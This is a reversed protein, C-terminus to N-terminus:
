AMGVFAFVAFGAAFLHAGLFAAACFGAALFGAALFAAFYPRPPGDGAGRSFGVAPGPRRGRPRTPFGTGGNAGARM